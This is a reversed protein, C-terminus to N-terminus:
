TVAVPHTPATGVQRLVAYCESVQQKARWATAWAVFVALLSLGAIAFLMSGPTRERDFFQPAVWWVLMITFMIAYSAKSLRTHGASLSIRSGAGNAVPSVTGHWELQPGRGQPEFTLAFSSGSVIVRCGYTGAERVEPPMKSERWEKGFAALASLLEAPPRPLDIELQQM